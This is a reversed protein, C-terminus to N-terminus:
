SRQLRQTEQSQPHSSFTRYPNPSLRSLTSRKRSPTGPSQNELKAQIQDLKRLTEETPKLQVRYHLSGPASSSKPESDEDDDVDDEINDIVSHEVAKRFSSRGINTLDTEEAIDSYKSITKGRGVEKRVKIMYKRRPSADNMSLSRKLFVDLVKEAEEKVKPVTCERRLEWPKEEFCGSDEVVDSSLVPTTAMVTRPHIVEQLNEGTATPEERFDRDRSERCDQSQYEVEIDASAPM